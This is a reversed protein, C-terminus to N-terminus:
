LGFWPIFARGSNFPFFFPTRLILRRVGCRRDKVTLFIVESGHRLQPCIPRRRLRRLRRTLRRRLQRPRKEAKKEAMKAKKEAKKAAVEAKKAAKKEAVEAKTDAKKEAVAAQTDAKKEAVAAKTEAKKEATAPAAQAAAIGSTAFLFVLAIAWVMFRKM